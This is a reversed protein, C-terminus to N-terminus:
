RGKEAQWANYEADFDSHNLMKGNQWAHRLLGRLLPELKDETVYVAGVQSLGAIAVMKKTALNAIDEVTVGTKDDKFYIMPKVKGRGRGGCEPCQRDHSVAGTGDCYTCDDDDNDSGCHSTM